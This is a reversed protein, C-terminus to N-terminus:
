ITNVGQLVQNKRKNKYFNHVKSLKVCVMDDKNKEVTVQYIKFNDHAKHVTNKVYKTM